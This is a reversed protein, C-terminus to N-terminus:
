FRLPNDLTWHRGLVELQPVPIIFEGGWEKIYDLQKIIEDKLNWPLILVYNPKHIRIFNPDCVRIHSGPLYKGIKYPSKDVVFHVMDSKIGCYNLLTNGKAAAGYAVVKHPSCLIERHMSIKCSLFRILDHKIKDVEEQFGQYYELRKMGSDQELLLLDGVSPCLKHPGEEHQVYIRISGGHTPFEEVDFVQLKHWLFALTISSLSFYSYHEHYITDFQCGEVLRMLHPLEMTIVGDPALAIKLGAIFDNLDPQHALVNIGCILDATDFGQATSKNFFTPMTLIGKRDAVDCPGRSPEWGLVKIGKEKFWQLMYGDNSGIEMVRKPKFRKTIMDAYEKAHSVNSPSQSSYYPYDEKFIDAHHKYEPVQVLWCKECVFVKLPYTVEPEDLQEKTLFANSPPQHGLDLFVHTLENQCLNCLKTTM